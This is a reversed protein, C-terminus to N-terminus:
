LFLFVCVSNFIYACYKKICQVVNMVFIIQLDELVCLVVLLLTTCKHGM